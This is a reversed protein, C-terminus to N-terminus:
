QVVFAADLSFKSGDPNTLVFQVAGTPLSNPLVVQLTSADVFSTAAPAGNVAVTTGSVFGTGRITVTTGSAGSAPTVSGIALPVSDLDIMTLGATTLLFIHDGAPTIAMTKSPTQLQETPGFLIKESLLVRERLQGTRAEIIDVGEGTVAYLLAGSQDLQLSPGEAISQFEPFNVQCILNLQSDMLYPFPFGSDEPDSNVAVINGDGSVAADSWFQFQSVTQGLQYVQWANAAAHWMVLPGGSDNSTAVVVSSGDASGQIYNNNLNLLSGAPLSATTVQRTSLDLIYVTSSGGSLVNGATITIFAQNTSTTAIQFPGPNGAMGSLPLRVAAAGVTPSALNIIAVSQDGQNAVLLESRDPTLALGELQYTGGVSPVPIASVFSLTAISFVDVHNGASLYLQNRLPDCLVYSFNDPSPYDTVSTVYHFGKSITATGASSTVTIDQVGAATGAPITIGLDQLPFPYPGSLGSTFYLKSQVPAVHAGIQVQIPADQVDISFGYGFIDSSEGGQVGSALMGYAVPVSGYTFASPLISMGGTPEIVKLNVPGVAPSPPATAQVDNSGEVAIVGQAPQNGFFLGLANSVAPVISFSVQTAGNLPGELPTTRVIGSPPQTVNALNQFNTADDIAVGHDAIEYVLGTQDAAQPHGVVNLAGQTYSPAEGVVQFTSTDITVLAPVVNPLVVYLDKGDPSYVAEAARFGCCISLDVSGIVNMQANFFQILPTGDILAFQTGAPNMAPEYVGGQFGPVPNFTDTAADYVTPPGQGGILIKSHDASMSVLGGGQSDPRPTSTGAVPDWEVASASQFNGSLDELGWASFLLVKGNSAEYAQAAIVHNLGQVTNPPQPRPPITDREIVQLSTTDIWAVQSTQTGVLLRSDDVSLSLGLAGSVPICKVVSATTPSIVDVCNLHLASAFVLNHIPDYVVALPTDDTRM